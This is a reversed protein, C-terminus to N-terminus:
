SLPGVRLHGSRGINRASSTSSAHQTRLTAPMLPVASVTRCNRGVTASITYTGSSSSM